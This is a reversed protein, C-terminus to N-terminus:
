PNFVFKPYMVSYKLGAANKHGGGGYKKAVAGVDVGGDRSRLSITNKSPDVIAVFDMNDDTTNIKYGIESAHKEAYVLAVCYGEFLDNTYEYETTKEEIYKEKQTNLCNIIGEMPPTILMDQCYINDIIESDFNFVGVFHLYTNLREAGIAMNYKEAAEEDVTTLDEPKDALVRKFDFTDYLRVMEVFETFLCKVRYCMDLRNTDEMYQFVLETGCTLKGNLETQVNAWEYDNLWEATKHHDLLVFKDKINEEILKILEEDKKFSIDTMFIRDFEKHYGTEIVSRISQDITDYDLYNTEALWIGKASALVIGCSVGDLDDHTLLLTKLEKRTSSTIEM